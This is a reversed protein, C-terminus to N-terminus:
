SQHRLTNLNDTVITGTNLDDAIICFTKRKPSSKIIETVKGLVSDIHPWYSNSM